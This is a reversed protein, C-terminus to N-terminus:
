GIEKKFEKFVKESVAITENDLDPSQLLQTGKPILDETTEVGAIYNAHYEEPNCGIISLPHNSLLMRYLGEIKHYQGALVLDFHKAHQDLSFVKYVYGNDKLDFDYLSHDKIFKMTEKFNEQDKHYLAFLYKYPHDYVENLYLYTNLPKAVHKPMQLLPYLFVMSKNDHRHKTFSDLVEEKTM